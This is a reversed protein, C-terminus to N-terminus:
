GEQSRSRRYVFGLNRSGKGCGCWLHVEQRNVLFAWIKNVASDLAEGMKCLGQFLSLTHTYFKAKGIQEMLNQMQSLFHISRRSEM